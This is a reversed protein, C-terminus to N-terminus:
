EEYRYLPFFDLNPNHKGKVLKNYADNNVIFKWIKFPKFDKSFSSKFYFLSDESNGLGGGLNFYTYNNNTAKIRMDDILLRIPSLNLYETKTGSIHYQIINKTKIMMAASIIEENSKLKVFLLEVEFSNSNLFNFFYEKDFYYMKKANVRDM